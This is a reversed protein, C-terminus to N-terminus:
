KGAFLRGFRNLVIGAVVLGAAPAVNGPVTVGTTEALGNTQEYVDLGSAGLVFLGAFILALGVAAVLRGLSASRRPRDGLFQDGGVNNIWEGTQTDVDFRAGGDGEQAKGGM